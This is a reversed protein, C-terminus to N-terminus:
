PAPHRPGVFRSAPGRRIVVADTGAFTGRLRLEDATRVGVTLGFDRAFTEARDLDPKEFVLWALDRVKIVPSRSRGPREGRLAGQESHLGSHASPPTGALAPIEM